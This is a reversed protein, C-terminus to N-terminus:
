PMRRKWDTRDEAIRKVDAYTRVGLRKCIDDFFSKRPRGRQKKGAVIGEIVEVITSPWRLLHGIWRHRRQEITSILTRTEGVRMLVEENTIRDRYSIKKIRRWCWMEFSELKKFDQKSITWTESAYSVISWVLSKLLRKKLTMNIESSTLEKIKYYARKATAIRCKIDITSRGDSTIMSGLYRFSTVQKLTKGELMINMAKNEGKSVHMVETKDTNIRMNFQKVFHNLSTIMYQLSRVSGAVNITLMDLQNCAPQEM